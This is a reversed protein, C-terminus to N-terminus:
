VKKCLVEYIIRICVYDHGSIGLGRVRSTDSGDIFLAM